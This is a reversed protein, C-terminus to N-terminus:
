FIFKLDLQLRDYDLDDGDSAITNTFYTAGFSVHKALGLGFGLVHGEADTGGGGFDSHSFAGVLADKEVVRYDYKFEWSWQDKVKGLSFGFLYATDDDDPDSNMVYDTYLKFPLKGFKLSFELFGEVLDYDYMYMGDDNTSNGFSDEEDVFPEFGKADTYNFFSGGFKLGARGIKMNLGAQLGFLLSDDDGSREEVWFGGLNGFFKVSEPGANFTLALGEPNLDTDWILASKGINVFPNKMKGGVIKLQDTPHWDFYALDLNIGKTSFGSDLTQNTSVPDSSGSALQVVLDMSDNVKGKVQVRARIRHRNRTNKGEEDIMEHRYRLDGKIKLNDYWSADVSQIVWGICVVFGLICGLLKSKEALKM